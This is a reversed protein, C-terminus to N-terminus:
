SAKEFIDHRRKKARPDEPSPIDPSPELGGLKLPSISIPKSNSVKVPSPSPSSSQSSADPPSSAVPQSHYSTEPKVRTKEHVIDRFAEGVPPPTTDNSLHSPVPSVRSKSKGKSKVSRRAKKPTINLAREEESPTATDAQFRRKYIGHSGRTRIPSSNVGSPIRPRVPEWRRVEEFGDSKAPSSGCSSKKVIHPPLESLSPSFARAHRRAQKVIESDSDDLEVFSDAEYVDPSQVRTHKGRSKKDRHESGISRYHQPLDCMDIDSATSSSAARHSKRSKRSRNHTKKPTSPEVAAVEDVIEVDSLDPLVVRRELFRTNIKIALRETAQMARRSDSAVAPRPQSPAPPSLSSLVTAYSCAGPSDSRTYREPSSAVQDDRDSPAPRRPRLSKDAAASACKNDNARRSLM